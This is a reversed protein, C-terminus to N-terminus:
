FFFYFSLGLLFQAFSKVFSSPCITLLCVSFDEVDNTMLSICILGGHSVVACEGSHSFEFPKAVSFVPLYM